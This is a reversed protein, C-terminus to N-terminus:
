KASSLTAPRCSDSSYCHNLYIALLVIGAIKSTLYAEIHHYMLAIVLNFAAELVLKVVMKDAPFLFDDIPRFGLATGLAVASIKQWESRWWPM